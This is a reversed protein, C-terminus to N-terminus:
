AKGYSSSIKDITIKKDWCVRHKLDYEILHMYNDTQNRGCHKSSCFFLMTEVIEHHGEGQFSQDIYLVNRHSLQLSLEFKLM